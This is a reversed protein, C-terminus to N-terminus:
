REGEPAVSVLTLGCREVRRLHAFLACTDTLSGTLATTGDDRPVVELPAFEGRWRPDLRGKVLITYRTEM